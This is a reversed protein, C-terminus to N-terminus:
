KLTQMMKYKLDLAIEQQRVEDIFRVLTKKIEKKDNDEAIATNNNYEATITINLPTITINLPVVITM